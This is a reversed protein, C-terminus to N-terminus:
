QQHLLQLLKREAENLLQSKEEDTLETLYKRAIHHRYLPALADEWSDFQDAASFLEQYFDAQAIFQSRDLHHALTFHLERIWVFDKEAKEQEQLAELWERKVNADLESELNDMKLTLIVGKKDIRSEEIVQRCLDFLQTFEKVGAADITKEQWLIDYTEHFTCETGSETMEVLYCGKEALEKRNRGQTNGPYIIPPEVSLVERKHIHGLAWYDFQKELLDALRFPAYKGHDSAGEFHGHLLGIHFDAGSRKVYQDIWRDTVHRKPYSFGYLHVSTGDQKTFTMVEVSDNFVHVNEPWNLKIYNGGLHDHNGHIMYVDIGNKALREMENRFRAQVRISRNEGDFVDGAILVFDVKKKIALDTINTLAQFTSEQLRLFVEDALHKLGKMPSDLHLDACHLFTVKKM